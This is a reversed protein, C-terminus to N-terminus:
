VRFGKHPGLITWPGFDAEIWIPSTCLERLQGDETKLCHYNDLTPCKNINSRSTRDESTGPCQKISAM